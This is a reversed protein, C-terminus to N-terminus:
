VEGGKIHHSLDLFITMEESCLTTELLQDDVQRVIVITPMLNDDLDRTSLHPSCLLVTTDNWRCPVLSRVLV